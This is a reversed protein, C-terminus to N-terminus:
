TFLSIYMTTLCQTALECDTCRSGLTEYITPTQQKSELKETYRNIQLARMTTYANQVTNTSINLKTMMRKVDPSEKFGQIIYKRTTATSIQFNEATENLTKGSDMYAQYVRIYKPTDYKVKNRYGKHLLCPTVLKGNKFRNNYQVEPTAWQLNNARNDSRVRNIHDVSYYEKDACVKPPEGHFTWCIIRHVKEHRGCLSILLYGDKDKYMDDPEIIDGGFRMLRGLSSAFTVNSEYSSITFNPYKILRWEETLHGNIGIISQGRLLATRDLLTNSNLPPGIHVSM